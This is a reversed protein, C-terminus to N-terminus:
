SVPQKKGRMGFFTAVPVRKEEMNIFGPFESKKGRVGTFGMPARKDDIYFDNFKASKKGRTVPYGMSNRKDKDDDDFYNNNYNEMLNSLAEREQQLEHFLEAQYEDSFTPEYNFNFKKGRMGVFGSPAKKGRM